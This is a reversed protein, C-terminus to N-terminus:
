AILSYQILSEVFTYIPHDLHLWYGKKVGISFGEWLFPKEILDLIQHFSKPICTLGYTFCLTDHLTDTLNDEGEKGERERTM